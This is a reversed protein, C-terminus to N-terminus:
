CGQNGDFKKKASMYSRVHSNTRHEETCPLSKLDQDIEKSQVKGEPLYNYWILSSAIEEPKSNGFARFHSNESSAVSSADKKSKKKSKENEGNRETSKKPNIGDNRDLAEFM